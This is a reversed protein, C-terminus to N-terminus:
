NENEIVTRYKFLPHNHLAFAACEAEERNPYKHTAIKKKQSYVIVKYM